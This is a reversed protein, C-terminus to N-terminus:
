RKIAEREYTIIQKIGQELSTNPLWGTIQHFLSMDACSMEVPDDSQRDQVKLNPLEARLIDVVDDISHAVGSGLNIVGRADESEALRILGEAVDDAFIYDFHNKWGYVEIPENQLCARIWRSIVDRSGLGYVRFIRASVARFNGETKQIFDIEKETFYKALGVLNRPAIPHSEKLRCLEPVDLYLRPDYVLYSSAFVFVKLSPVQVLAKLLLHSLLVNNEFSTKWYGPPEETREFTAALHFVVEPDFACVQPPVGKALDAQIHKVPISNFINGSAIDVSLVKAGKSVLTKVVARGIVGASGTVLVRKGEWNM